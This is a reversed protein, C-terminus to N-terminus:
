KQILRLSLDYTDEPNNMIRFIINYIIKENATVLQEFADTDGKKAKKILMKEIQKDM